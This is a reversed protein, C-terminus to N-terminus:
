RSSARSKPRFPSGRGYEQSRPRAASSAAKSWKGITEFKEVESAPATDFYSRIDKIQSFHDLLLRLRPKASFTSLDEM